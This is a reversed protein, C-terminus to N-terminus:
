GVISLGLDSIELEEHGVSVRQEVVLPPMQMTSRLAGRRMRQGISDGVGIWFSAVLNDLLHERGRM